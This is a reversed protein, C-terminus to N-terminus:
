SSGAGAWNRRGSKGPWLARTARPHAQLDCYTITNRYGFQRLLRTLRTAQQFGHELLLHGGAGLWERARDAILQLAQFGDPGSKLAIEPEFVLDGLFLHPDNDAVYPPNSIVLDYRADPISEFWNSTQFQVNGVQHQKANQRAIDLAAPSIDTALISLEPREMALSVAIIGSGTGLDLVSMPRGRPIIDLAIEVLLETEPRPILVDPGVKFNSSWFERHGTLYAIPMSNKRKEILERYRDIQLTDLRTEPWTRLFARDKELLHGLLIEADLRASASKSDLAFTSSELVSRITVLPTSYHSEHAAPNTM